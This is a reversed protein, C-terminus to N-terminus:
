RSFTFSSLITNMQEQMDTPYYFSYKYGGKTTYYKGYSKQDCNYLMCFAGTKDAPKDPDPQQWTIGNIVSSSKTSEFFGEELLTREFFVYFPELIEFALLGEHNQYKEHITWSSPYSFTVGYEKSSYSKWDKEANPNPTIYILTSPDAAAQTLSKQATRYISFIIMGGFLVFFLIFILIFVTVKAGSHKNPSSVPAQSRPVLVQEQQSTQDQNM